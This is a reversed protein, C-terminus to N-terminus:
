STPPSSATPGLPVATSTTAVGATTTTTASASVNCVQGAYADVRGVADTLAQGEKANVPALATKLTTAASASEVASIMDATANAVTTLDTKLSKGNVTDAAPAEGELTALLTHIPAMAKLFAARSLGAADAIGPSQTAFTGVDNCFKTGPGVSKKPITAGTSCGALLVAATVACAAVINRTRM